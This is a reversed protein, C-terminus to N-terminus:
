QSCCIGGLIELDTECKDKLHMKLTANSKKGFDPRLIRCGSKPMTKKGIDKTYPPTHGLDLHLNRCRSKPLAYTIGQFKLNKKKKASTLTCFIQM